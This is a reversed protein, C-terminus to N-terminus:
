DTQRWRYRFRLYSNSQLTCFFFSGKGTCDSNTQFTATSWTADPITQGAANVWVRGSGTGDPSNTFIGNVLVPGMGPIVGSMRYGYTGSATGNTCRPARNFPGDQAHTSVTLSAATIVALVLLMLKTRM